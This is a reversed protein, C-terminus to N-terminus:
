ILGAPYGFPIFDKDDHKEYSACLRASMVPGARGHTM